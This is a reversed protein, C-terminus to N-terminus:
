TVKCLLAVSSSTLLAEPMKHVPQSTFVPLPSGWPGWFVVMGAKSSPWFNAHDTFGPLGHSTLFAHKTPTESVEGPKTQTWSLSCSGWLMVELWAWSGQSPCVNILGGKPKLYSHSTIYAGCMNQQLDRYSFSPSGKLGLVHTPKTMWLPSSLVGSNNGPLVWFIFQYFKSTLVKNQWSTSFM